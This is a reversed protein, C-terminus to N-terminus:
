ENVDDAKCYWKQLDEITISFGKQKIKTLEEGGDFKKIEKYNCWVWSGLKNATFSAGKYSNQESESWAKCFKEASLHNINYQNRQGILVFDSAGAIVIMLISFIIALCFFGEGDMELKM